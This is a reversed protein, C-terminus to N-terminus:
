AGILEEDLSLTFIVLTVQAQPHSKVALDLTDWYFTWPLHRLSQLLGMTSLYDGAFTLQLAHQWIVLPPPGKPKDGEPKSDNGKGTTPTPKHGEKGPNADTPLPGKAVITTTTPDAPKGSDIVISKAPLTKLATLTIGPTNRLLSELALTMERPTVLKSMARNVDGELNTLQKRYGGLRAEEELKNDHRNSQLRARQATLDVISKSLVASEEVLKAREALLPRFMINNAVLWPLFLLAVLIALKERRALADIQGTLHTLLPLDSM